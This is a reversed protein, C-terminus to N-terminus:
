SVSIAAYATNKKTVVHQEGAPIQSRHIIAAYVAHDSVQGGAAINAAAPQQGNIMPPPHSPPRDAPSYNIEHLYFTSPASASPLNPIMQSSREQLVKGKTQNFTLIRKWGYFDMHTLVILTFVLLAIGVCIYFYPLCSVETAAAHAVSPTTTSPLEDASYDSDNGDTNLDSVSINISNSIQESKYGKLFCRYLGGDLSSIRTFTLYSIFGDKIDTQTIEINEKYKIQDCDNTDLLKCWTVHGREGCHKVPCNVTLNHQPVTKYTAGRRVMVACLSDDAKGSICVFSFCCFILLHIYPLRDM